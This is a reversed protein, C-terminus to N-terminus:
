QDLLLKGTTFYQGLDAKEKKEQPCYLRSGFALADSRRVRNCWGHMSAVISTVVLAVLGRRWQRGLRRVVSLCMCSTGCSYM